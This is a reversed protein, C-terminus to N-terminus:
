FFEAQRRKVGETYPSHGFRAMRYSLEDPVSLFIDNYKKFRAFRMGASLKHFRKLWYRQLEPRDVALRRSTVEPKAAQVGSGEV